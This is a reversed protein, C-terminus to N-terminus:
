APKVRHVSTTVSGDPHLQLRRFGPPLDDIVLVDTGPKFQASTSPSALLRVNGRVSDFEQHIHAFLVCRVHAHRDVVAWFADQNQVGIPVFWPSGIDVPNHHLCVLAHRDPTEGLARDLHALEKETLRGAVQCPPLHSDLLVIRWGALDLVRESKIAGGPLVRAMVEPEDHNGPVFSVPAELDALLERAHAYSAETGDNSLDGTALVRDPPWGTERALALVRQFSEVGNIGRVEGDRDAVLHLDTFQIIAVPETEPSRKESM